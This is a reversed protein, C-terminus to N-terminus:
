LPECLSSSVFAPFAPMSAVLGLLYVMVLRYQSLNLMGSFRLLDGLHPNLLNIAIINPQLVGFIQPNSDM